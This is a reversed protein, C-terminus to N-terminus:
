VGLKLSLYSLTKEEINCVTNQFFLDWNGTVDLIGVGLTKEFSVLGDGALFNDYSEYINYEMTIFNQFAFVGAKLQLWATPYEAGTDEDVFDFTFGATSPSEEINYIGLITALAEAAKLGLNCVSESFYTTFDTSTNIEVIPPPSCIPKKGQLFLAESLYVQFAVSYNQSGQYFNSDTQYTVATIQIWANTYTKKSIPDYYTAVFGIPSPSTM